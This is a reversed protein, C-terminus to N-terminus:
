NTGLHQLLLAADYVQIIGSDDLDGYVETYPETPQQFIVYRLIKLVDDLNIGDNDAVDGKERWFIPASGHAVTDTNALSFANTITYDLPQQASVYFVAFAGAVPSPSIYGWRLGAATRNVSFMANASLAHPDSVSISSDLPILGEYAIHEAGSYRLVIMTTDGPTMYQQDAEVNLQASQACMLIALLLLAFFLISYKQKKGM